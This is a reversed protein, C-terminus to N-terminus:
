RSNGSTRPVTKCLRCMHHSPEYSCHCYDTMFVKTYFEVRLKLSDYFLEPKIPGRFSIQDVGERRGTHPLVVVEFHFVSLPLRTM